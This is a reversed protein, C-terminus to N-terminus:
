VGKAAARDGRDAQCAAFLRCKEVFAAAAKPNGAFHFHLYSALVNGRAYGERTMQGEGNVYQYAWPFDQGQVLLASYHFEHGRIKEGAQALISPLLVEYERYGMGVLRKEMKASAPVVGVMPYEKGEFDIINQCLYMLGGCEAYVPLGCAAQDAIEHKLATNQALQKLFMEPFGGGIFLGSIDGPLSKDWLPSFPVWEVGLMALYDLGDQYYFSFAEDRAIAVRIKESRCSQIEMADPAELECASHAISLLKAVDLNAGIREALMGFCNKLEEREGLPVLGLHREPLTLEEHRGIFGVVPIGTHEEISHKVMQLHRQSGVRNLIVGAIKVEPDMLKYGLVMAAASQAMSHVNLILIVPAQLLKAIEATSSKYDGNRHGDYLGMVGEIVALDAKAASVLFLQKLKEEGTLFADLNRSINGTAYSHYSPDIYDPGVKYPQVKYGLRSLYTMIGTAITTKGVGSHTGALVVRPVKM